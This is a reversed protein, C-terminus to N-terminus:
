NKNVQRLCEATPIVTDEGADEERTKGEGTLNNNGEGTLNNNGEGTLNKASGEGSRKQQQQALRKKLKEYSVRVDLQISDCKGMSPHEDQDSVTFTIVPGDMLHRYSSDNTCSISRQILRLRRSRIQNRDGSSSSSGGSRTGSDIINNISSDIESGECDHLEEAYDQSLSMQAGEKVLEAAEAVALAEEVTPFLKVFGEFRRDAVWPKIDVVAAGILVGTSVSEVTDRDYLRFMMENVNELL